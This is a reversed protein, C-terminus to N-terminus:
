FVATEPNTITMQKHLPITSLKLSPTLRKITYQFNAEQM